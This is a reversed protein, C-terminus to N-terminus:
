GRKILCSVGGGFSLVAIKIMGKFSLPIKDFLFYCIGYIWFLMLLFWLQSPAYGLFYKKVIETLDVGNYYIYFPIVWTIATVCYPRLLRRGRRRIDQLADQKHKGQETRQYYFLFGSAMTFTQVHFTNLWGSFFTIYGASYVPRVRHFWNGTFFLCCHYLVVVLMMMTKLNKIASLRNKNEM